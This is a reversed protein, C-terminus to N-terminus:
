GFLVVPGCWLNNLVGTEKPVGRLEKTPHGHSHLQSDVMEEESVSVNGRSRVYNLTLIQGPHLRLAQIICNTSVKSCIWLSHEWLRNSIEDFGSTWVHCGVTAGCSM